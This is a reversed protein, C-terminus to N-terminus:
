YAPLLEPSRHRLLVWVPLRQVLLRAMLQWVLQLALVFPVM